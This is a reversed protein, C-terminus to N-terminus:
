NGLLTDVLRLPLPRAKQRLKWYVDFGKSLLYNWSPKGAFNMKCAKTDQNTLHGAGSVTQTNLDITFITTSCLEEDQFVIANDTWSEIKYQELDSGLGTGTVYAKAELCRLEQKNCAIRSTQLPNAITDQSLDTRIWTGTVIVNDSHYIFDNFPYPSVPVSADVYLTCIGLIGFLAAAISAFACLVVFTKKTVSLVSWPIVARFGAVQARILYLLIFLALWVFPIPALAVFAAEANSGKMREAFERERQQDCSSLDTDDALVKKHHCVQYTLKASWNAHQIDSNHSHIGASLAWIISLGIALLRFGSLKMKHM